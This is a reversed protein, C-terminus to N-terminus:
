APLTYSREHILRVTAEVVETDFLTGQNNTLEALAAELGVAPRYPRHSSMSELVDAVALVRAEPLIEEGRLGRPYGSGDMREHHQGIIDDVPIRFPVDKLIDHGAQAHGKILAMELETLRTPKTLIESAVAIKGIDHVLGIMEMAKCRAADWGLEGAIAAAILGVRREHGATYPDRMEVMNSVARLTGQMAAELQQVYGAIQDEAHKRDTIDQAMVITAPLGDDWTIRKAHLGLEIVRGDKSYAPVSASDSSLTGNDVQIQRERLEAETYPTRDFAVFRLADQGMLEAVSYGMIEAFRPNVYIFRRDRRVFIGSITQEVMSRFRQESDRLAQESRRIDTLDTWAVIVDDGIVTMTGRAFRLSGDKCRLSLEPSVQPKGDHNALCESWHHQLLTREGEDIYVKEFWQSEDAFDALSYGLWQQHAANLALVRRSNRSLIQMPIPTVHFVQEFRRSMQAATEEASQSRALSAARELTVQVEHAIDELLRTQEYDFDSLGRAYLAVVGILQDECRLAMLAQQSLGREILSHQWAETPSLPLLADKSHPAPLPM